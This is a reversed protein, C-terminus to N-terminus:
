RNELGKMYNDMDDAVDVKGRNFTVTYFEKAGWETTDAHFRMADYGQMVLLNTWNNGDTIKLINRIEQTTAPRGLHKEYGAFFTDRMKTATEFLSNEPPTYIKADPQLRAVILRERMPPISKPGYGSNTYGEGTEHSDSYYSGNGYGGTDARPHEADLYNDRYEKDVVGRYIAEEKPIADLTTRTPKGIFGARELIVAQIPNGIENNFATGVDLKAASAIISDVEGYWNEFGAKIPGKRGHTSQDHKGALHKAFEIEYQNWWGKSKQLAQATFETDAYEPPMMAAACRCNPHAPPMLKGDFIPFEADWPVLKGDMAHCYECATPEAIWEKQSQSDLMGSQMGAEWGIYQGQTAANAIETRAITRARSQTLKEAYAETLSKAYKRAEKERWGKRDIYKKMMRDHYKAVAKADRETLPIYEGIQEAAQQWTLDGMTAETITRQINLRMEESIGKILFGTQSSAFNVSYEDIIDFTLKAGVGAKRYMQTASSIAAGQLIGQIGSFGSGISTWDIMALFAEYNGQQLAKLAEKPISKKANAFAARIEAIAKKVDDDFGDPLAWPNKAPM